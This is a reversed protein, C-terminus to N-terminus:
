VSHLFGSVQFLLCKKFLRTSFKHLNNLICLYVKLQHINKIKVCAKTQYLRKLDGRLSTLILKKEGIGINRIHYAQIHYERKLHFQSNSM